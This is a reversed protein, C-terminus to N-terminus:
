SVIMEYIIAPVNQQQHISHLNFPHYRHKGYLIPTYYKYIILYFYFSVM